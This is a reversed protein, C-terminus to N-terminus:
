ALSVRAVVATINDTGGQENAREVLRKVSEQPNYQEVIEAIEADTVLSSLGDTCLVLADGDRVTETFLDIEVEPKIGLCRYIQNRKEHMRAQEETLAGLRVQDAVWSHDHTIQQIHGARVIYARSDGVNAVSVTDGRLVAAVCTTGTEKEEAHERETSLACVATNAARVAQALADGTDEVPSSYYVESITNVAVRSAEEGRDHGGLGDAVVFLAGKQALAQRDTPVVSTMNDENRARKRGIDTLQAVDLYFSAPIMHLGRELGSLRKFLAIWARIHEVTASTVLDYCVGGWLRLLGATGSERMADRCCARFTQAMERGFARRFARPYVFLLRRYLRESLQLWRDSPAPATSSPM